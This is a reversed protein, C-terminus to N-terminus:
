RKAQLEALQARLREIAADKGAIAADKGALAADKGALAADKGALAADRDALAADKGALAADKEAVVSQWVKREEAQGKERANRLAAAEDHEAKERLRQAELFQPAVRIENYAKIAQAMEPVEPVEIKRLGEETEARFLRLWLLLSDGPATEAPLKGLEFFHLAMKDSLPEGRAVELPRFESHFGACGFLDFDVISAVVTRPLDRYDGGKPLASSYLRSWYFLAREPYDGDNRVQIDLNVQQGDVLMNIDFRCFKKGFAEPPLESNTVALRGISERRIGLLAAVFRKLLDQHRVFLMKFLTDTKLTYELKAM